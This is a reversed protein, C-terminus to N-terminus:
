VIEQTSMDSVLVLVECFSVYKAGQKVLVTVPGLQTRRLGVGVM